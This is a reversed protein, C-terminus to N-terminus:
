VGSNMWNTDLPISSARLCVGKTTGSIHALLFCLPTHASDGNAQLRSLISNIPDPKYNRLYPTHEIPHSYPLPTCIGPEDSLPGQRRRTKRYNIFINMVVGLPVESFDSDGTITNALLPRSAAYVESSPSILLPQRRMIYEGVGLGHFNLVQAHYDAQWANSKVM